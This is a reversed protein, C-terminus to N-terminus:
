QQLGYHKATYAAACPKGGDSGPSFVQDTDTAWQRGASKKLDCSWFHVKKTFCKKEEWTIGFNQGNAKARITESVLIKEAFVALDTSKPLIVHIGLTLLNEFKFTFM